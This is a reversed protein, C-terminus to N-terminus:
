NPKLANNEAKQIIKAVDQTKKTDNWFIYLKLLYIIESIFMLCAAHKM